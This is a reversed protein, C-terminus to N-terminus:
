KWREEKIKTESLEVKKGRSGGNLSINEMHNFLFTKRWTILNFDEEQKKSNM